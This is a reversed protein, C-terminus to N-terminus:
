WTVLKLTHSFFPKLSQHAIKRSSPVFLRVAGFQGHSLSSATSMPVATMCAQKAAWDHEAGDALSAAHVYNLERERKPIRHFVPIPTSVKSAWRREAGECLDRLDRGSMGSTIKVIAAISQDALHKAFQKLIQHRRVCCGSPSHPMRICADLGYQRPLQQGDM